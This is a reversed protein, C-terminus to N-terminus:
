KKPVIRFYIDYDKFTPRGFSMIKKLGSLFLEADELKDFIAPINNMTLKESDEPVETPINDVELKQTHERRKILYETKTKKNKKNSM